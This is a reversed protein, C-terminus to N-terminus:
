AFVSTKDDFPLASIEDQALIDASFDGLDEYGFDEQAFSNPIYEITDLPESQPMQNLQMSMAGTAFMGFVVFNTRM